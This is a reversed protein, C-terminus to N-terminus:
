AQKLYEDLNDPQYASIQARAVPGGDIDIRCDMVAVGNDAQFERVVTVTLTQGIRFAPQDCDYRRTGVLFGVKVADGRSRAEFGALAAITQAMYEVGVWGGVALGDCFPSDARITTVATLTNPAASVVRDLLVMRGSHPLYDAIPLFPPSPQPCPQNM